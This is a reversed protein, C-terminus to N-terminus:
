QREKPDRTVRSRGWYSNNISDGLERMVMNSREDMARRALRTAKMYGVMFLKGLRPPNARLPDNYCLMVLKQARTM